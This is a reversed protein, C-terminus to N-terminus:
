TSASNRRQYQGAFLLAHKEERLKLCHNGYVQYDDPTVRGVFEPHGGRRLLEAFVEPHERFYRRAKAAHWGECTILCSHKGQISRPSTALYPWM